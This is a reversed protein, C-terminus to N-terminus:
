AQLHMSCRAFHLRNEHHEICKCAQSHAQKRNLCAVLPAVLLLGLPLGCDVLSQLFALGVGVSAPKLLYLPHRLYSSPLKSMNTYIQNEELTRFVKEVHRLHGKWMESYILIENFFVLM